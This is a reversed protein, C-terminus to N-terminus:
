DEKALGSPEVSTGDGETQKEDNMQKQAAAATAQIAAAQSAAAIAATVDHHPLTGGSSTPRPGDVGEREGVAAAALHQLGAMNPQTASLPQESATHPTAGRKQHLIEFIASDWGRGDSSRYLIRGESVADIMDKIGAHAEAQTQTHDALETLSTAVLSAFIHNLPTVNSNSLSMLLDKTHGLIENPNEPSIFRAALVRVYHLALYPTSTAGLNSIKLAQEYQSISGKIFLPVPVESLVAGLAYPSSPDINWTKGSRIVHNINGIINVASILHYGVEGLVNFEERSLLGCHLPLLATTNQSSAYFRDLIFTGWFIRRAAEFCEYDQEKLRFIYELDDFHYTTLQAILRGLLSAPYESRSGPQDSALALLLVIQLFVLRNYPIRPAESESVSKQADTCLQDMNLESSPAPSAVSSRVAADLATFFIERLKSPCDSLRNLSATEPPLIPFAPHINNYYAKILTEHSGTILSGALAFDSYSSRQQFPQNAGNAMNDRDQSSWSNRIYPDQLGESMSHTRKRGFQAPAVPDSLGQDGIWSEYNQPPAGPQQIQHELTNLRDALEKIYGKSPGRKMPQRSFQCRAGTRKCSSCAEPGNESTADCRIKKRRCEDCARSVKSRKRSGSGDHDNFPNHEDLNMVSQAMQQPSHTSRPAQFQHHGALAASLAHAQAQTGHMMDPNRHLQSGLHEQLQLEPDSAMHQQQAPPTGNQNVYLGAGGGLQAEPDPYSSTSAM